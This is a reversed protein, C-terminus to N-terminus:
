RGRHTRRRSRTYRMRLSRDHGDHIGGGGAHPRAQDEELVELFIQAIWEPLWYYYPHGDVHITITVM